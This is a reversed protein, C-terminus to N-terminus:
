PLRVELAGQALSEVSGDARYVRCVANVLMASPPPDGPSSYKRYEKSAAAGNSVTINQATGDGMSLAYLVYPVSKDAPLAISLSPIAQAGANVILILKAGAPKNLSYTNGGITVSSAAVSVGSAYPLNFYAKGDPCTLTATSGSVILHAYCAAGSVLGDFPGCPIRDISVTRTLFVTTADAVSRIQYSGRTGPAPSLGYLDAYGLPELDEMVAQAAYTTDQMDAARRVLATNFVFINLLPLAVIALVFVAVMVELLTFGGNGKKVAKAKM